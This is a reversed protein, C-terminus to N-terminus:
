ICAIHFVWYSLASIFIYQQRSCRVLKFKLLPVPIKSNIARSQALKFITSCIYKRNPGLNLLAHPGYALCPQLNQCLMSKFNALFPDNENFCFLSSKVEIKSSIIFIGGGNWSIFVDKSGTFKMNETQPKQHIESMGAREKYSQSVGWAQMIDFDIFYLDQPDQSENWEHVCLAISIYTSFICTNTEWHYVM